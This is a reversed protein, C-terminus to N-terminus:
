NDRAGEVIWDSVLQVLSADLAPAGLPMRSGAIGGGVMKRWILSGCVDGAAFMEDGDVGGQKLSAYSRLDLGTTAFGVNGPANPDHCGVCHPQLVKPLIDNQFSVVVAPNSDVPSCNANPHPAGLEPVFSECASLMLRPLLTAVTRLSATRLSMAIPASM